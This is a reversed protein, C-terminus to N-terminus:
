WPAWCAESLLQQKYLIVDVASVRAKDRLKHVNVDEASLINSKVGDRSSEFLWVLKANSKGCKEALLSMHLVSHFPTHLPGFEEEARQVATLAAPAVVLKNWM